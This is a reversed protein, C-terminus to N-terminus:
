MQVRQCATAHRIQTGFDARVNLIDMHQATIFVSPGLSPVNKAVSFFFTTYFFSEWNEYVSLGLTIKITLLLMVSM